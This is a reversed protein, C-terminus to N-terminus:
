NIFYKAEIYQCEDELGMQKFLSWAGDPDSLQVMLEIEEERYHM